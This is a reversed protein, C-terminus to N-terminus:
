RGEAKAGGRADAVAQALVRHLACAEDLAERWETPPTHGSLMTFVEGRDDVIVAFDHDRDQGRFWKSVHLSGERSWRVKVGRDYDRAAKEAALQEATAKPRVERQVADGTPAGNTQETM